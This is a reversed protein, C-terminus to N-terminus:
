AARSRTAPRPVSRGHPRLTDRPCLAEHVTTPMAVVRSRGGLAHALHSRAPLAGRRGSAGIRPAGGLPPAARVTAGLTTAGPKM